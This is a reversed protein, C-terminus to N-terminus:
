ALATGAADAVLRAQRGMALAREERALGKGALAFIPGACLCMAIGVVIVPGVPLLRASAADLIIKPLALFVGTLSYAGILGGVAAYGIGM